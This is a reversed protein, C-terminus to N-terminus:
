FFGIVAPRRGIARGILDIEAELSATDRQGIEIGKVFIDKFSLCFVEVAGRQGFLVYQGIQMVAVRVSRVTGRGVPHHRFGTEGIHRDSIGIPRVVVRDRDIIRGVRIFIRHQVVIVMGSLIVRIVSKHLVIKGILRSVIVAIGAIKEGIIVRHQRIRRTGITIHDQDGVVINGAVISDVARLIDDHVTNAHMQRAMIKATRRFKARDFLATAIGVAPEALTARLTRRTAGVQAIDARREEAVIHAQKGTVGIDFTGATKGAVIEVILIILEKAATARRVVIDATEIEVAVVGTDAFLAGQVIAVLGIRGDIGTL